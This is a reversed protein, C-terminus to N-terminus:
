AAVVVGTGAPSTRLQVFIRTVPVGTGYGAPHRPSAHTPSVFAPRHSILPDSRKINLRDLDLDAAEGFHDGAPDDGVRGAAREFNVHQCM